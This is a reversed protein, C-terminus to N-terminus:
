GEVASPPAGCHEHWPDDSKTAGCVHCPVQAAAAAPRIVAELEAMFALVLRMPAHRALYPRLADWADALAKRDDDSM